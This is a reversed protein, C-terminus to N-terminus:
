SACGSYCLGKPPQPTLSGMPFASPWGHRKGRGGATRVLFHTGDGRLGTDRVIRNCEDGCEGCTRVLHCNTNDEHYLNRNCHSHCHIAWHTSSCPRWQGAETNWHLKMTVSAFYRLTKIRSSMQGGLNHALSPLVYLPSQLNGKANMSSQLRNRLQFSSSVPNYHSFIPHTLAVWCQIWLNRRQWKSHSKSMDSGKRLRRKRNHTCVVTM